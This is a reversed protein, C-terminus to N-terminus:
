LKVQLVVQYDPLQHLDVQLVGDAEVAALVAMAPKVQKDQLGAVVATATVAQAM